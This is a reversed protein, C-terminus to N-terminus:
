TSRNRGAALASLLVVTAATTLLEPLDSGNDPFFLVFLALAQHLVFGAFIRRFRKARLMEAFAVRLKGRLYRSLPRLKLTLLVTWALLVVGLM